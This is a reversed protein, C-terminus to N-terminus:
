VNDEAELLIQGHGSYHFYVIDGPRAQDILHHQFADIIGQRSAQEDALVLIDKEPFGFRPSLLVAKIAAIDNDSTLNWWDPPKGRDREYHSLGVLLAIKRPAAADARALSSSVLCAMVAAWALGAM